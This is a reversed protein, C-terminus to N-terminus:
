QMGAGGVCEGKHGRRGDWTCTGGGGGWICTGGEVRHAHAGWERPAGRVQLCSKSYDPNEEGDPKIFDAYVLEGDSSGVYFLGRDLDKFNFCFCSGGLDM